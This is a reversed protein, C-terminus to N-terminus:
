GKNSYTGGLLMRRSGSELQLRYNWALKKELELPTEGKQMIQPISVLKLEPYIESYLLNEQRLKSIHPACNSPIMFFTNYRLHVNSLEAAIEDMLRYYEQAQEQNADPTLIINTGIEFVKGQSKAKSDLYALVRRFAESGGELKKLSAKEPTSSLAFISEYPLYYYSTTAVLNELLESYLKRQESQGEETKRIIQHLAGTELGDGYFFKLGREAANKFIENIKKANEFNLAPLLVQDDTPILANAGLKTYEDILMKSYEIDRLAAGKGSNVCFSCERPCDVMLFFNDAAFYADRGLIKRVTGHDLDQFSNCPALIQTKGTVDLEPRGVVKYDLQCFEHYKKLGERWQHIKQNKHSTEKRFNRLGSNRVRTGGLNTHIGPVEVLNKYEGAVLSELVAEGNETTKGQFVVDFGNSLLFEEWSETGSGSTMLLKNQYKEKLFKGMRALERVHTESSIPVVVLDQKEVISDFGPVDAINRGIRRVEVISKGFPIEGVKPSLYSTPVTEEEFDTRPIASLNLLSTHINWDKGSAALGSQLERAVTLTTTFPYNAQNDYSIIYGDKAFSELPSGSSPVIKM